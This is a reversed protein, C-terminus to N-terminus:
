YNQMEKETCLDDSIESEFDENQGEQRKLENLVEEKTSFVQKADMEYKVFYISHVADLGCPLTSLSEYFM